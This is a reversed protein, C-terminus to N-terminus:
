DGDVERMIREMLHWAVGNRMERATYQQSMLSAWWRLRDPMPPCDIDELSTSCVPAAPNSPAVIAPVGAIIADIAVNSSHTVVVSAGALDAALSREAGVKPRVRIEKTTHRAVEAEIGAVWAPMDLGIMKGFTLGPLAVLVYGARTTRWPKLVNRAPFRGFDPERMLIPTLGRYTFEFHGLNLNGNGSSAYYGNDILWFPLGAKVARPVIREVVWLQGCAIFPDKPNPPDDLCVTAREPGLHEFLSKAVLGQKQQRERAVVLWWHM